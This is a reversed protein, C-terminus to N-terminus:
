FIKKKTNKYKLATPSPPIHIGVKTSKKRKCRKKRQKERKRKRKERDRRNRTRIANKKRKKRNTQWSREIGEDSWKWNRKILDRKEPWRCWKYVNCGWGWWMKSWDRRGNREQGAPSWSTASPTVCMEKGSCLFVIPPSLLFYFLRVFM